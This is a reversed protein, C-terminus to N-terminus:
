LPDLTPSSKIDGLLIVISFDKLNPKKAVFLLVSYSAKNTLIIM